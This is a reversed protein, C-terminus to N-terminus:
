VIGVCDCDIELNYEKYNDLNGDLPTQCYNCNTDGVRGCLWLYIKLPTIKTGDGYCWATITDSWNSDATHTECQYQGTDSQYYLALKSVVDNIFGQDIGIDIKDDDTDNPSTQIPLVSRIDNM